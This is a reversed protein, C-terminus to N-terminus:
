FGETLWCKKPIALRLEYEAFRGRCGDSYEILFFQEPDNEFLHRPMAKVVTGTKGEFWGPAVIVVKDGPIM